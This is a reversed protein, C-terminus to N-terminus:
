EKAHNQILNNIFTIAPDDSPIQLECLKFSKDPYKQPFSLIEDSGDSYSPCNPKPNKQYKLFDTNSITEKLQTAEKSNLKTHNQFTGDEYLKYESSCVENNSCLGGAYSVTMLTKSSVSQNESISASNRHSYVYWSVSTVLGIVVLIILAEVVSFGQKKTKM